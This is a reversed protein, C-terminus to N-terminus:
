PFDLFRRGRNRHKAKVPRPAVMDVNDYMEIMRCSGVTTLLIKFTRRDQTVYKLLVGLIEEVCDHYDTLDLQELGDIVALMGQPALKMLKDLIRMADKWTDLTGDLKAFGSKSFKLKTEFRNPLLNIIQRILSYALNIVVSENIIDRDKSSLYIEKEPDQTPDTCDCFFCLLPMGVELAKMTVAAALPSSSESDRVWLSKSTTGRIWDELAIAVNRDVRIDQPELFHMMSTTHTELGGSWMQLDDRM